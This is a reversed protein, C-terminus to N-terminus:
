PILLARYFRQSGGIAAPDQFILTGTGGSINTLTQWSRLDSCGQVQYIRETLGQLALTIRGGPERLIWGLRFPADLPPSIDIFCIKNNSAGSANGVSLRGDAVTVVNSGSVWRNGSTPTGSVLLTGEVDLRYTTSSFVNPDGAVAFVGYRGNPVAIEWLRGGGPRQLQNFTDYRQDPSRTSNRDLAGATNDVDWGFFLDNARQGYVLGTDPVYGPPVIAASPQFNIKIGNFPPVERVTFRFARQATDQGDDLTITIQTTGTQNSAPLIQLTRNTGAGTISLGNDPVFSDNSSSARLTLAALPTDIDSVRIQIPPVPSDVGLTLDAVAALVPPDNVPTVTLTFANTALVGGDDVILQIVVNGSQNTLPALSLTRNTGAGGFVINNTPLLLPNSSTVVLVLSTPATYDDTVTFPLPGLSTDEATIQDGLGSIVPPRNTCDPFLDVFDSTSLGAPDTVTLTIRYFYTDGDCGFPGLVTSTVWNTDIPDTHIHNNHHLVTQWQPRLQALSHELDSVEATLTYTPNGTLPYLMGNTPSTIHVSPPTNNVSVALQATSTSQGSDTVTLVIMYRTPVGAPANFIHTPNAATSAATGDGFDWRYTLPLGEPDTSNSGTFHVTLPSTGYAADASAVATPPLNNGGPYSIRRINDTWPIYYLDGTQPHMAICVVAGADPSFNRVSVLRNSADFTFSRIWAEGLDGHFYTNRWTAPFSFGNYWTGGISCNGAFQPGPVPSDAAGINVVSANTGVFIGTRSPGTDHKWDAVPRTHVFRPISSPIPQSPSCPNPWSVTGLTAEKLLDRFTFYRQTCGGTNYLPNLADQNAPDEGIYADPESYGEFIPWGFNQGPATCVSLEEWTYYGVDGIYIVGPNADAQVTSGTGPRLCIRYPNRLGLAFVRSRASRPAASDYFPNSPLGNGTAPDLRLIKGSMCDVLQSRFAGINEKPRIIGENLAQSYYSEASSGYDTLAAGDGCSALLSGDTGFALTGVGHTYFMIPFGTSATEGVLVLRSAPDVSRFNDSSRATYRTLRGITAQQYENANPNYNPTGFKSLYHHDVVYLLYVYGNQRFNPHFAVGLLGYDSWAGVEPSIDLFPVPQKVDNEIIWIHGIRDWAYVRGAEDFTVGVFEEFTDGIENEIFGAPLTAASLWAASWDVLVVLLSLLLLISSIARRNGPRTRSVIVPNPM